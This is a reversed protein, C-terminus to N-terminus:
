QMVDDTGSFLNVRCEDLCAILLCVLLMNLDSVGVVVCLFSNTLFQKSIMRVQPFTVRVDELFKRAEEGEAQSEEIVTSAIASDGSYGILM